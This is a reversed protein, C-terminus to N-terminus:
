RDLYIKGIIEANKVPRCQCVDETLYMESMNDQTFPTWEPLGSGNPDGTKAFNTWYKIMKGSLEYHQGSFSRWCRYLTGFVYWLEASHYPVGDEVFGYIDHDPIVPDFYYMYAPIHGPEAQHLAVLADGMFAIDEPAIGADEARKNKSFSAGLAYDGRVSGVMIPINKWQGAKLCELPADPLVYGDSVTKPAPGLKKEAAEFLNMLEHATLARLEKVTKGSFACFDTGWQEATKRDTMMVDSTMGFAGSQIIARAFLKESLDTILQAIVSMGGASQGFITVNEPDGGFAAINEQVWRLAAVQDLIGYNGSVKHDNELSLEPHAFFGFTNLRYNITVLIVGEKCIAEGDFEMEHGYGSGFGGGHIWFMVPLKEDCTQAPTWVNLCLSHESCPYQYPYFEKLFFDGFPLGRVPSAQMCIDSFENCLKETTWPAPSVPERFRNEGETPAAYPIGRYVTYMPNGCPVGRVPGFATVTNRLPM